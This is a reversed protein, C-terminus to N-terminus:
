IQCFMCLQSTNAPEHKKGIIQELEEIKKKQEFGFKDHNLCNQHETETAALCPFCGVRNFGAQYLPNANSKGIYDFIDKESWDLVPLRFMIGKKALYKPFVPLLDHPAYIESPLRDKYRNSRKTSEDSRMGLWVEFGQSKKEHLASYFWKSANLKLRDTCFRALANPFRGLKIVQESVSSVSVKEIHVGYLNEIKDLHAYSDPHEWKTDCFLGIIEAKDYTELALKLCAQSDKGSSVPVVVKIKELPYNLLHNSLEIM